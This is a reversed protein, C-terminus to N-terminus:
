EAATNCRREDGETGAEVGHNEVGTCQKAGLADGSTGVRREARPPVAVREDDIERPGDRKMVSDAERDVVGPLDLIAVSQGEDVLARVRRPLDPALALIVVVM